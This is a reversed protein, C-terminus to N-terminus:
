KNERLKKIEFKLNLNERKLAKIKTDYSNFMDELQEQTYHESYILALLESQLYYKGWESPKLNPKEPILYDDTVGRNDYKISFHDGYIEIIEGRHHGLTYVKDGVKFGENHM